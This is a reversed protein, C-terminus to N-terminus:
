SSCVVGCPTHPQHHNNHCYHHGRRTHPSMSSPNKERLLLFFSLFFALGLGSLRGTRNLADRMPSSRANPELAYEACNDYKLYSLGWRAYASADLDEHYLGGPAM